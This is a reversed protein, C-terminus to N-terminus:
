SEGHGLVVRVHCIADGPFGGGSKGGAGTSGGGSLGGSIMHGGIAGGGDAGGPNETHADCIGPQNQNKNAKM